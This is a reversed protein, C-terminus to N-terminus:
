DFMSLPIGRVFSFKIFTSERNRKILLTTSLNWVSLSHSSSLKIIEGFKHSIAFDNMEM